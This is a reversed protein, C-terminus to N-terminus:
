GRWKRWGGALGLALLCLPLTSPEPVAAAVSGVVAAVFPDVDLGNVDGDENMDAEAQFPGNLLVDVFPDVDLGNVTGDRNVDGLVPVSIVPSISGSLFSGDHFGNGGIEYKSETEALDILSSTTPTLPQSLVLTIDVGDDHVSGELTIEISQTVDITASLDDQNHSTWPIVLSSFQGVGNEFDSIDFTWSFTGTMQTNDDLIVNDLTYYVIDAHANFAAMNFSSLIMWFCINKATNVFIRGTLRSKGNPHVQCNELSPIAGM